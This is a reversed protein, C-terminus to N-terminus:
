YGLWGLVETGNYWDLDGCESTFEHWDLGHRTVERMAQERSVLPEDTFVEDLTM